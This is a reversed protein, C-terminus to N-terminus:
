IRAEEKIKEIANNFGKPTLSSGSVKTLEVEDLSKGVVMAEVNEDFMIQYKKSITNTTEPEYEVRDIIGNTLTLTISVTEEQAPTTYTGVASYTGDAYNSSEKAGEMTTDEMTTEQTPASTVTIGGTNQAQGDAPPRSSFAFIAIGIVAVAAIGLM